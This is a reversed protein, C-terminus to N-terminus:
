GRRLCAMLQWSRDEMRKITMHDKGIMKAGENVPSLDALGLRAQEEDEDAFILM